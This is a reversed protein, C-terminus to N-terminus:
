RCRKGGQLHCTAPGACQTMWPGPPLSPVSWPLLGSWFAHRTATGSRTTGTCRRMPLCRPAEAPAAPVAPVQVAAREAPRPEPARTADFLGERLRKQTDNSMPQDKLYQLIRSLRVGENAIWDIRDEGQEPTWLGGGRALIRDQSDRRPVGSHHLGVVEWQDNFVPAGSSGPQTDARYHLFDPLLDIVQNDRLALQKPQGGPHQVINVYEEILIPDDDARAANWGFADLGDGGGAPPGVAVLTFDLAPDTVFFDQPALAFTVPTLPRGDLGDGVNFEVTSAAARDAANLVHNNTLLLRPAVLSGTGFGLPRGGPARIRVRGVARAARAGRELFEAGILDNKGIIRELLLEPTSATEGPAAQLVAFSPRVGLLADIQAPALGLRLLRKRVRDPPNRSLLPHAGTAFSVSERANQRDRYRKETDAIPIVLAEPDAGPSFPPPAPTPPAPAPAPALVEIVPRPPAAAGGAALPLRVAPDGLVTYTRADNTATWTEALRADDPTKGYKVDERETDLDSSLEAYRGNFAEMASGVPKGAMLHRLASEFAQLQPDANTWLFSYGWARDVHGVVALAGGNPHALLQRPLRAVIPQPTSFDELGAIHAFENRSPTGAGYCAFHFAILGALRAGGSVDEAAFYHEPPIAKRWALPGPWDQCLLAGQHPLQRTDGTPFAMGHSATFLLAPTDDGGLLRALQAKTAQGDGVATRLDWAPQDPLPKGGLAQALPTVLSRASLGTARDDPSSVGFFAARRPLQVKGTEAAVVSHAYRRYEDLTDFWLRGVAYQVDLQYQVRFPIAQPDGVLLLFYPVGKKPDVPGPGVGLRGLYDLKSEGPRYARHGTFEQYLNENVRAAQARRHDLLEKLADRLGPDAGATFVVGWGAEELRTMDVGEVVAFTPEHARRAKDKLERLHQPDIPEGLAARAVDRAPLPPTVYEGTAGNLGNFFLRDDPPPSSPPM